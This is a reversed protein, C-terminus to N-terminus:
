PKKSKLQSLEAEIELQRNGLFENRELTIGKGREMDIAVDEKQLESIKAKIVEAMQQEEEPTMAEKM